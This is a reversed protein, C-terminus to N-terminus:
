NIEEYHNLFEDLSIIDEFNNRESWNNSIDQYMEGLDDFDDIDYFDDIYEFVEAYTL